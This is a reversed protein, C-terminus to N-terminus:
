LCNMAWTPVSNMNKVEVKTDRKQAKPRISINADVRMTGNEMSCESSGGFTCHACHKSSNWPQYPFPFPEPVIDVLARAATSDVPQHAATKWTMGLKAVDEGYSHSSSPVARSGDEDTIEIGGGKSLPLHAQSLQYGKPLDPYYYVKQDFASRRQLEAGLALCLLSAKELADRSLLPAAGPFWLCVPCTNVNPADSTQNPCDCFL